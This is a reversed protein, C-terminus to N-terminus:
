ATFKTDLCFKIRETKNFTREIHLKVVSSARCANAAM